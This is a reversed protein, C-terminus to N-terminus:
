RKELMEHSLRNILQLFLQCILQYHFYDNSAARDPIYILILM